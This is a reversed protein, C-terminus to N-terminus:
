RVRLHREGECGVSHPLKGEGANGEGRPQSHACSLSQHPSALHQPASAKDTSKRGREWFRLFM